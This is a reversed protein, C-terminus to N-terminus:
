RPALEELAIRYADPEAEFAVPMRALIALQATILPALEQAREPTIALGQAEALGLIAEPSM